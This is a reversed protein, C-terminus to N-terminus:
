YDQLSLHIEDNLNNTRFTCEFHKICCVGNMCEYFCKKEADLHKRANSSHM